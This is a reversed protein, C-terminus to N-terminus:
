EDDEDDEIVARKKVRIPVNDEDDEDMVALETHKGLDDDVEESTVKTQENDSNDSSENESQENHSEEESSQESDSVPVSHVNSEKFASLEEESEEDDSIATKTRKVAPSIIEDGQRKPPPIIDIIGDNDENDNNGSNTAASHFLARMQEATLNGDYSELLDRLRRERAYFAANAEEDEEDSDVIYKMSKYDANTSHKHRSKREAEDDSLEHMPLDGTASRRRRSKSKKSRHKSKKKAIGRGTSGHENAEIADEIQDLEDDMYGVKTRGEDDSHFGFAVDDDDSSYGIDQFADSDYGRNENSEKYQDKLNRKIVYDRATKGEELSVPSILYIKIYTNVMILQDVDESGSFTCKQSTTAPLSAGALKLLYRVRPETVLKKKMSPYMSTIIVPKREKDDPLDSIDQDPPVDMSNEQLRVTVVKELEQSLWDVVEKFGDDILYAVMIAVKKELDMSDGNKIEVISHVLTERRINRIELEDFPSTSVGGPFLMEVYLCPEDDLSQRLKKMFHNMFQEVHKRINSTHLLGEPSLMNHLVLMFDLRFLLNYRKLSFFIRHLFKIAKKLSKEPVDNFRKIFSIYSHITGEHALSAIFKDRLDRRGKSLVDAASELAQEDNIDLDDITIQENTYVKVYSRSKQEKIFEKMNTKAFIDMEKTMADVLAVCTDVFEPSRKHANKVCPPIPSIHHDKFIRKRLNTSIYRNEDLSSVSLTNAVQLMETLLIMCAHALEWKKEDVAENFYSGLLIFTEDTLASGVLTYDVESLNSGYRERQAELFWAIIMVYQIKSQTDSGKNDSSSLVRTCAKIFPNFAGDIFDTVFSNFAKRNTSGIAVHRQIVGEDDDTYKFRATKIWKKHQDFTAIPDNRSLLNGSNSVTLRGLDPTQLSLLTGFRGHRSSTHKKLQNVMDKEKSLLDGLALSSEAQEMSYKEVDKSYMIYGPSLHRVMNYLIDQSINAVMQPDFDKDVGISSYFTLFFTFVLNDHFAGLCAGISVDDMDVGKPLNETLEAQKLKKGKAKSIGAPEIQLLNRFFVICQKIIFYDIKERERKDKAIVPLLIKIVAQLVFGNRYTLIQKKYYLQYKKLESYHELQQKFIGESLELPLTLLVLLKLCKRAIREDHKKSYGSITSKKNLSDNWMCLITVLDNVLGTEACAVAVEWSNERQDHSVIWKEIDQLCLYAEIGLKYPANQKDSSYDLGGLSTVLIAIYSKIYPKPPPPQNLSTQGYGDRVEQDDIVDGEIFDELTEDGPDEM